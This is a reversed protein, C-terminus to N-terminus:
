TPTSYEAIVKCFPINCTIFRYVSFFPYETVSEVACLRMNAFKSRMFLPVPLLLNRASYCFQMYHDWMFCPIPTYPLNKMGRRSYLSIRIKRARHM